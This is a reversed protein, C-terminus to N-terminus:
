PFQARVCSIENAEAEPGHVGLSIAVEDDCFMTTAPQSHRLNHLIQREDVAIRAAAYVGAVFSSRASWPYASPTIPSQAISFDDDDDPHGLVSFTTLDRSAAPKRALCARHAILIVISLM